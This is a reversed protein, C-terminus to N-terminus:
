TNTPQVAGATSQGTPIPLVPLANEIEQMIRQKEQERTAKRIPEEPLLVPYTTSEIRDIIRDDMRLKDPPLNSTYITPLRGVYRDNVLAYLVTDIWEKSMQVGIDDVVLLGAQRIANVEADDGSFGKKTMELFDLINVFKVSGKYRKVIENILCCSLMTKGSGKTGSHIYLGMGKDRLQKYHIIYRNIMDKADTTDATYKSWDFDKATVNLFEFPMMARIRRFESEQTTVKASQLLYERGEADEIMTIHGVRYFRIDELQENSLNEWRPYPALAKRLFIRRESQENLSMRKAYYDMGGPKLLRFKALYEGNPATAGTCSNKEM